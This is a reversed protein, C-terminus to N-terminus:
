LRVSVPLMAILQVASFLRNHPRTLDTADRQDHAADHQDVLRLPRPFRKVIFRIVQSPAAILASAVSTEQWCFRSQV